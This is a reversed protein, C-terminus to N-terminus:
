QDTCNEVRAHTNSFRRFNFVIDGDVNTDNIGRLVTRGFKSRIACSDVLRKAFVHLVYERTDDNPMQRRCKDAAADNGRVRNLARVNDHDDHV